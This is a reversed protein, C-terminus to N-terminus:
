QTLQPLDPQQQQLPMQETATQTPGEEEVTFETFPSQSIYGQVTDLVQDLTLGNMTNSGVQTPQSPDFDYSSGDSVTLTYTAGQNPRVDEYNLWDETSQKKLEEHTSHHKM